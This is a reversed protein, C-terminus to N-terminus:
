SGAVHNETKQLFIPQLEFLVGNDITNETQGGITCITKAMTPSNLKNQM